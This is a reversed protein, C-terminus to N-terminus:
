EGYKVAYLLISLFEGISPKQALKRGALEEMLEPNTRWAITIAHRINREANSYSTNNLRAVHPMLRKTILLLDEEGSMLLQLSHLIYHHGYYNSTIGLRILIKKISQEM